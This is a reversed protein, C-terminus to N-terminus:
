DVENARFLLRPDDLIKVADLMILSDETIGIGNNARERLSFCSLAQAPINDVREIAEILLALRKTGDSLLLALLPSSDAKTQSLGLFLKLDLIPIVEGRRMTVGRLLAPLNFFPNCETFIFAEKAYKTEVAYRKSELLFIVCSIEQSVVMKELPAALKQARRKLIGEEHFDKPDLM